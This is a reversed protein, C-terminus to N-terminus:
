GTTPLLPECVKLAEATQPDNRNLASVGADPVQIRHDQLCSTYARVASDSANVSPAASGSPHQPRLSACAQEAKQWAPDTTRPNARDGPQGSPMGSPRGSPMGSPRGSPMGGPNGGDPMGSGSPRGGGPGASGAPLTVGNATMCDRYAQQDQGAGQGASGSPSAASTKGAGGGGCATLVAAAALPACLALTRRARGTM